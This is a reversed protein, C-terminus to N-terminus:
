LFLKGIFQVAIEMRVDTKPRVTRKKMQLTSTTAEFSQDM